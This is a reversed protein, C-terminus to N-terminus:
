VATDKNDKALADLLERHAAVVNRLPPRSPYMTTSSYPMMRAPSSTASNTSSAYEAALSRRTVLGKPLTGVHGVHSWCGHGSTFLQQSSHGSSAFLQQSSDNFVVTEVSDCNSGGNSGAGHILMTRSSGEGNCGGWILGGGSGSQYLQYHHDFQQRLFMRPGGGGGGGGNSTSSNASEVSSSTCGSMPSSISAVATVSLAPVSSAADSSNNISIPVPALRPNFNVALATSASGRGSDEEAEDSAVQARQSTTDQRDGKEAGGILEMSAEDLPPGFGVGRADDDSPSYSSASLMPMTRVGGNGNRQLSRGGNNTVVATTTQSNYEKVVVSSNAAVVVDGKSNVGGRGGDSRRAARKRKANVVLCSAAAAGLAVVTLVAGAAVAAVTGFIVAAGSGDPDSKGDFRYNAVTESYVVTVNGEAVGGENQAVCTYGGSGSPRVNEITLNFWRLRGGRIRSKSTSLIAPNRPKNANIGDDGKLEGVHITYYQHRKFANGDANPVDDDDDHGDDGSAVHEANRSNNRIVVGSRVWKLRSGAFPNESVVCGLRVTDGTSVTVMPEPVAVEPPCALMKSDLRDWTRGEVKKPAACATPLNFLNHAMIWEWFDRLRCDCLWPNGELTLSKLAGMPAFTRKDMRKFHNDNLHLVEVLDLAAFTARGVRSLRCHSLDVTRLHPISPFAFAALSRIPNHSLWLKRIRINGEFTGPILMGLRNRSLDLEILIVLGEFATADVHSISCNSLYVKQLNIMGAARFAREPLSGLPNGSMRLVQIRDPAPFEPLKDLNLQPSCTATRKGHVWKCECGNTDRCGSAWDLDLSGSMGLCCTLLM